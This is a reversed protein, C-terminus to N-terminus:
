SLKLGVAKALRAQREDFTWFRQAGLELACAVHLTDLTRVNVKAAYRRALIACARFVDEPLETEIWIGSVRDHDMDSFARQAQPLSLNRQFVQQGIAHCCEAYHLVTFWLREGSSLLHEADQSHSDQIYLSVFVSSDAYATM